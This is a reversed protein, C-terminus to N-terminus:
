NKGSIKWGLWAMPLYAFILDVGIFWNPAPIIFSAYIGGLLFFAGITLALWMRHKTAILAAVLGGVFTGVAHALFPPIFHHIKYLHMGAKLSEMNTVDVGEPPPIIMGGLIVIGMNVIGGIICGAIVALIGRIINNM